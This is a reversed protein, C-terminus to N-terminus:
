GLVHAGTWILEGFLFRRAGLILLELVAAAAGFALAIAIPAHTQDLDSTRNPNLEKRVAIM